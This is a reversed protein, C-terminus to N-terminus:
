AVVGRSQLSGAVSEAAVRGSAVAGDMYGVSVESISRM